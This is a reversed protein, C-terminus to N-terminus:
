REQFVRVYDVEMVAPFTTSKPPTGPLNGGVALNMLLYMENPDTFPAPFTASQPSPEEAASAWSLESGEGVELVKVDDISFTIQEPRWDLRYTHYDTANSEPLEYLTSQKSCGPGCSDHTWHMSTIVSGVDATDVEMLDLEGSRGEDGFPKDESLMWVAPLMGAGPPVKARVEIRGYTWAHTSRVLGSRYPREEGDNCRAEQEEATLRLSGDDVSLNEPRYCQLEKNGSGFGSREADWGDGLAAGNFEDHWALRYGEPVPVDETAVQNASCGASVLVAMTLAASVIARGPTLLTM